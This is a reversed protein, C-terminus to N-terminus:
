SGATVSQFAPNIRRIRLFGLLLFDHLVVRGIYKNQCVTGLSIFHGEALSKIDFFARNNGILRVISQLLM